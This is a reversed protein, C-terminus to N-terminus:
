FINLFQRCYMYRIMTCIRTQEVKAAAEEIAHPNSPHPRRGEDQRGDGGPRGGRFCGHRHEVVRVPLGGNGPVREPQDLKVSRPAPVALPEGRDEVLYRVLDLIDLHALHVAGDFCAQALAELDLAVRREDEHLAALRPLMTALARFRPQEGQEIPHPAWRHEGQGRLAVELSRTLRHQEDEDPAVAGLRAGEGIELRDCPRPHM